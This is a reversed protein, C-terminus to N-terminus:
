RQEIVRRIHEYVIPSDLLDFHNLARIHFVNDAYAVVSGDSRRGAASGSRVLLDGALGALPHRSGSLSASIFTHTCGDLPPVHSRHDHLLRKPDEGKWDEAVLYGFRLDRIGASRRDLIDALPKSEPAVRLIWASLHVLKELPVGTHPAGLTILHKVRSPWHRGAVTGVHCASRAVLGGMSHGILILETVRVPWAEILNELLESLRTGNESIHLGTNYRVYVPTIGFDRRLRRGFPEHERPQWDDPTRGLGHLFVAIRGEAKPFASRLSSRECPISNADVCVSMQIALENGRQELVDGALANLASISARGRRSRNLVRLDEGTALRISAAALGLGVGTAGRVAAYTARAVHDHVFRAPAAIPGVSGFVRRSVATHLSEAPALVLDDVSGGAFKVLASLENAVRM